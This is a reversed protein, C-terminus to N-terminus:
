IEGLSGGNGTSILFKVLSKLFRVLIKEEKKCRHVGRKM